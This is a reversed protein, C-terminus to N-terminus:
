HSVEARLKELAASQPHSREFQELRARAEPVRGTRALALIMTAEFEGGLRPKLFRNQYEELAAMAESTHGAALADQAKSLMSREAAIGGQAASAAPAASATAAASATSLAASTPAPPAPEAPASTGAAVAGPVAPPRASAPAPKDFPRTLAGLVFGAALLAGARLVRGIPLRPVAWKGRQRQYRAYEPSAKLRALVRERVEAPLAPATELGLAGILPVVATGARHREKAKLRQAAEDVESKAQRLRTKVTGEPLGLAQAIEAATLQDVHHMLYVERLDTELAGLLYNLLERAAATDEATATTATMDMDGEEQALPKRLASRRYTSAIKRAINLLWARPPLGRNEYSPLDRLVVVYVDHLADALDREAVGLRWLSTGVYDVEGYLEEFTPSATRHSM